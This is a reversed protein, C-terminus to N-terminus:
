ESYFDDSESEYFLQDLVQTAPKKKDPNIWSNIESWVDETIRVAYNSLVIQPADESAQSYDPAPGVHIGILNRRKEYRLWVPAGSQGGYTDVTHKMLNRDPKVEKLKDFARWQTSAQLQASCGKKPNMPEKGCKDGPYGAINVIISTGSLFTAKLPKIITGQGLQQHGWYGLAQNGLKRYKLSSIDDKLTILAYDYDRKYDPPQWHKCVDWKEAEVRGLPEEAGNRAPAVIVKEVSGSGDDPVLAHAVTLVHRPGILIGTGRELKGPFHLDLACIWRYPVELTNKVLVRSDKPPIIERDFMLEHLTENELEWENESLAEIAEKNEEEGLEEENFEDNDVEEEDLENVVGYSEKDLMFGPVLLPYNKINLEIANFLRNIAASNGFFFAKIASGKERDDITSIFRGAAEVYDQYAEVHLRGLNKENAQMVQRTFYEPFGELLIESLRLGNFFRNSAKEAAIGFKNHM